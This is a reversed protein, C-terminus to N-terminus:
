ILKGEKDIEGKKIRSSSIPVGDEAMVLPMVIINLPVLGKKERLNNIKDATYRTEESVVIADMKKDDKAPGYPDDLKIIKCKDQFLNEKLFDKLVKKRDSYSKVDKELMEDSTLGVVVSEGVEFAKKLLMEHGKHFVDFTGGVAVLMYRSSKEM